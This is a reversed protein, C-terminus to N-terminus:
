MMPLSRPCRKASMLLKIETQEADDMVYKVTVTYQDECVVQFTVAEKSGNKLKWGNHYVYTVTAMDKAPTHTASTTENYATVFRESSITVTYELHRDVVRSSTTYDGATLTMPQSGAHGAAQNTCSVTVKISNLFEPTGAEVWKATLTLDSGRIVVKGGADM